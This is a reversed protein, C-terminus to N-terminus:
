RSCGQFRQVWQTGQNWKSWYIRTRRTIGISHLSSLVSHMIGREWEGKGRGRLEWGREEEGRSVAPGRQGKPGQPGQAGSIGPQGSAGQPGQKGPAGRSGKAGGDGSGGQGGQCVIIISVIMIIVHVTNYNSEKIIIIM